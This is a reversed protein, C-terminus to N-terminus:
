YEPGLTGEIFKKCKPCSVKTRGQIGDADQEVLLEAGRCFPCRQGKRGAAIDDLVDQWKLLDEENLDDASV